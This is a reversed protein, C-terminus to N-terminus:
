DLVDFITNDRTLKLPLAPNAGETDDDIQILQKGSAHEYHRIRERFMGISETFWDATIENKAM